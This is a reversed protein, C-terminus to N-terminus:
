IYIGNALLTELEEKESSTLKMNDFTIKSIATFGKLESLQKTINSVQGYFQNYNKPISVIPREIILYPNLVSMYCPTTTGGGTRSVQAKQNLVESASANLTTSIIGGIDGRLGASVIDGVSNITNLHTAYTNMFSISTIPISTAMNGNFSYNVSNFVNQKICKIIAVFDGSMVDINYVLQITAGMCDDNSLEVFGYFPLWLKIKSFMFDLFNAYYPKIDISGCDFQIYQPCTHATIGMSIGGVYVNKNEGYAINVPIIHSSIIMDLPQIWNQQVQNNFDESWLYNSFSRMQENTPRFISVMDSATASVTPLGPINITDSSTDYSGDNIGGQAESEEQENGIGINDSLKWWHLNDPSEGIQVRNENQAYLPIERITNNDYIFGDLRDYYSPPLFINLNTNWFGTVVRIYDKEDDTGYAQRFFSIELENELNSYYNTMVSYTFYVSRGGDVLRWGDINYDNAVSLDKYFYGIFANSVTTSNRYKYHSCIYGFNTEENIWIPEYYTTISKDRDYLYYGKHNDIFFNMDLPNHLKLSDGMPNISFTGNEISIQDKIGISKIGDFTVIGKVAGSNYNQESM